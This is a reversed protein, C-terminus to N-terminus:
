FLFNLTKLKYSFNKILSIINIIISLSNKMNQIKLLYILNANIIMTINRNWFHNTLVIFMYNNSDYSKLLGQNSRNLSGPITLDFTEKYVGWKNFPNFSNEYDNITRITCNTRTGDANPM